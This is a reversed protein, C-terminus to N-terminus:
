AILSEALVTAAIALFVMGTGRDIWRRTAAREMFRALRRGAQIYATGVAIDAALAVVALLAIQPVVPANADIFPPIVAVMYVLSKPNSIAVLIGDTFAHRSAKAPVEAHEEGAHFSHRIAAVGLWALYLAGAITLLDFALPYAAALTGLGLAALTWWGVYGLQMGALAAAGSKGGRWISQSMVFLMSPGPVISTASTVFLFAALREPDIM